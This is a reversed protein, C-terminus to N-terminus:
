ETASRKLQWKELFCLNWKKPALGNAIGREYLNETLPLESATTAVIVKGCAENRIGYRKCFEVLRRNGERCLKAKLCVLTNISVAMGFLGPLM